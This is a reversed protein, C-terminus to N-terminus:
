SGNVSDATEIAEIMLTDLIELHDDESVVFLRRGSRSLMAFDPHPVSVKTGGIMRFTLPVFPTRKMVDRIGEISM